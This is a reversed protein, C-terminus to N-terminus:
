RDDDSDTDNAVGGLVPDVEFADFGFQVGKGPMNDWITKQAPQLYPSVCKDPFRPIMDQDTLLFCQIQPAWSDNWEASLSTAIDTRQQKTLNLKRDLVVLLNEILVQKRYEDRKAYEAQLADFSQAPLQERATDLFAAQLMKLPNPQAINRGVNFAINQQQPNHQAQVYQYAAKKIAEQGAENLAARQPKELKCVRNAFALEKKLVPQLRNRIEREAPDLNAEDNGAVVEVKIKAPPAAAPQNAVADAKDRDAAVAPLVTAFTLCCIFYFLRNM